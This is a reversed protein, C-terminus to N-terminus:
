LGLRHRTRPGTPRELGGWAGRGLVGSRLLKELAAAAQAPTQYRDEPRKAMLKQVIAVLAVPIDPRLVQVAEPDEMQHRVLKLGVTGGPFPVKGTLLFYLTCGLSYLDARIDAHHADRIQEPALYDPTGMVAGTDTLTSSDDGEAHSRRALGFDLGKVVGGATLLLK